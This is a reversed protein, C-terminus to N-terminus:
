DLEARSFLDRMEAENECLAHFAVAFEEMAKRDKSYVCFMDAEPDMGIKDKLQPLREDLFVAALSAWDYGSGQFGEEAREDFINQKYDGVDTMILSASDEYVSIMFPKIADELNV